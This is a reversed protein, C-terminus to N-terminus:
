RDRICMELAVLAGADYLQPMGNGGCIFDPYEDGAVLTGIAEEATQSTYLLCIKIKDGQEVFLPVNVNAGTEVTAPKTAGTALHTYSVSGM